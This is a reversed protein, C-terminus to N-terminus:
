LCSVLVVAMLCGAGLLQLLSPITKGRFFMITSGSLLICAPVLGVLAKVLTPNM